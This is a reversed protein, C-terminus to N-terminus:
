YADWSRSTPDVVVSKLAEETDAVSTQPGGSLMLVGFVIALLFLGGKLRQSFREHTSRNM